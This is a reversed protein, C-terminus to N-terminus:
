PNIHYSKGCEPCYRDGSDYDPDMFSWSSWVQYALPHTCDEQLKSLQQEYEQKLQLRRLRIPSNPCLRRDSENQIYDISGTLIEVEPLQNGKKNENEQDSM